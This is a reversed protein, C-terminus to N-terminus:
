NKPIVSPNGVHRGLLMTPPWERRSNGVCCESQGEAICGKMVISRGSTVTLWMLVSCDSTLVANVNCKPKSYSQCVHMHVSKSSKWCINGLYYVTNYVSALICYAAYMVTSTRFLYVTNWFLALMKIEKVYSLWMVCVVCLRKVARHFKDPFVRTLRYWFFCEGVVRMTTM